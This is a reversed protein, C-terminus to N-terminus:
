RTMYPVSRSVQFAYNDLYNALLYLPSQPVNLRPLSPGPFSSQVGMLRNLISGMNGINRSPNKFIIYILILTFHNYIVYM